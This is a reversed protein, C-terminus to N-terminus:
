IETPCEETPSTEGVINTRDDRKKSVSPAINAKNMEKKALKAAKKDAKAQAEKAQRQVSKVEAKANAELQYAKAAIPDIRFLVSFRERVDCLVNLSMAALWVPLYITEDEQDPTCAKLIYKFICGGKELSEISSRFAASMETLLPYEGTLGLLLDELSVDVIRQDSFIDYDLMAMMEM